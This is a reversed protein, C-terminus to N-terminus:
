QTSFFFFFIEVCYSDFSVKGFLPGSAHSDHRAVANMSSGVGGAVSTLSKPPEM